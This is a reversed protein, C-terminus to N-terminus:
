VLQSKRWNAPTTGIHKRFVRTFHAQDSFGTEVAVDTLPTDSIMLQKARDLRAKTQWQHPPIGTSAKFAHSFHSQSMSTLSALEELRINRLCNEEIYDVVRRLQWAALRSRKRPATRSLQLVDILLSVALGDGYLDHLPAPNECEAAILGALALVRPDSFLLRPNGLRAPDLDEMLRRSLGEASFHIDLHRVFDIDVMDAWMELGAPIYSARPANGQQVGAAKPSLKLSCQGSGRADLLVFLRPDDSVYYGGAYPACDVDWVDAVIGNWVRRHVGGIVSFGEIKNDMRPHFTM